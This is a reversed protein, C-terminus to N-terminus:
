NKCLELDIGYDFIYFLSYFWINKRQQYSLNSIVYEPLYFLLSWSVDGSLETQSASDACAFAQDSSPMSPMSQLNPNTALFHQSLDAM